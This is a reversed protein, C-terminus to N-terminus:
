VFFNTEFVSQSFEDKLNIQTSNSQYSLSIQQKKRLQALEAESINEAGKAQILFKFKPYKALLEKEKEDDKPEKQAEVKPAGENETDIKPTM